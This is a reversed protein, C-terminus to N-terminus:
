AEATHFVLARPVGIRSALNYGDTMPTSKPTVSPLNTYPNM